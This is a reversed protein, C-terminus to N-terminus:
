NYNLYKVRKDQRRTYEEDCEIHSFENMIYNAKELDDILLECFCCTKSM